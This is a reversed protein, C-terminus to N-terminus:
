RVIGPSGPFRLASCVSHWIFFRVRRWWSALYLLNEVGFAFYGCGADGFLIPYRLGIFWMVFSSLLVAALVAGVSQVLPPVSLDYAGVGAALGLFVGVVSACTWHM